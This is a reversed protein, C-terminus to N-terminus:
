EDAADSTYLLCGQPPGRRRAVERDVQAILLCLGKNLVEAGRAVEGVGLM